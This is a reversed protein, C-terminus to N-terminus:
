EQVEEETDYYLKERDELLICVDDYKGRIVIEVWDDMVIICHKSKGPYEAPYRIQDLKVNIRRYKYTGEPYPLAAKDAEDVEEDSPPEFYRETFEIRGIKSRM